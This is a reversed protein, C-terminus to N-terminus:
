EQSFVRQIKAMAEVIDNMDDRTGLLMNQYFWVSESCVKEVNPCPLERMLHPYKGALHQLGAERSLPQGYGSTCPIGEASLAQLFESRSHGGFGAPDYTMMFLHYGHLTTYPALRPPTLGEIEDIHKSLYTGNENRWHTQEELLVLRADLLAALYESPRYNWGIRPYEWREGGPRRGVDM